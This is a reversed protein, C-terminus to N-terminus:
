LRISALKIMSLVNRSTKEHWTAVRRCSTKLRSFLRKIKNRKRDIESDFDAALKRKAKIPIVDIAGKEWIVDRISDADYM